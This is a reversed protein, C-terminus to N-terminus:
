CIYRSFCFCHLTSVSQFRPNDVVISIGDESNDEKEDDLRQEQKEKTVTRLGFVKIVRVVIESALPRGSVSEYDQM